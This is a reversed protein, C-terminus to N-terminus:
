GGAAIVERLRRYARLQAVRVAGHSRGLAAAIEKGTLGVLRLEVIQRQTPPLSALLAQVRREGEDLLVGEEPSPTRDFEEAIQVSPHRGRGRLADTTVNHAIGFLWPRFQEGRCRPLAALVRVFVQSTADEAAERDGLHRYCYGLVRGVYRTYLPAFAAPDRQALRVLAADGDDRDDTSSREGGALQEAEDAWTRGLRLMGTKLM